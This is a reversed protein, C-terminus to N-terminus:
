EKVNIEVLTVETKETLDHLPLLGGGDHTNFGFVFKGKLDSCFYGQVLVPLIEDPSTLHYFGPQFERKM